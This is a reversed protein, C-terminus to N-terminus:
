RRQRSRRGILSSGLAAVVTIGSLFAGGWLANAFADTEGALWVHFILVIVLFAVYGGVATWVVRSVRVRASRDGRGHPRPVPRRRAILVMAAFIAYATVLPPLVQRLM